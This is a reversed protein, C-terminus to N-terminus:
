HLMIQTIVQMGARRNLEQILETRRLLLNQRLAPSRLFVHLTQNQIFLRSVYPAYGPGVVNNWEEIIRHQALPTELGERRLYMQLIEGISKTKTRRM